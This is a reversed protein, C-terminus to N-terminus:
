LWAEETRTQEAPQAPWVLLLVLSHHNWAPLGLLPRHSAAGLPCVPFHVLVFIFIGTYLLWRPITIASPIHHCHHHCLYYYFMLCCHSLSHVTHIIDWLAVIRSWRCRIRLFIFSNSSSFFCLFLHHHLFCWDSLTYISTSPPPSLWTPGPHTGFLAAHSQPTTFPSIDLM